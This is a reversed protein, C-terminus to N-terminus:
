IFIFYFGGNEWSYAYTNLAPKHYVELSFNFKKIM